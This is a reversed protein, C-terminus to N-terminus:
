LYRLKAAQLKDLVESLIQVPVGVSDGDTRPLDGM